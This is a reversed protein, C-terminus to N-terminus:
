DEGYREVAEDRHQEWWGVLRDMEAPTLDFHTLGDTGFLLQGNGRLFVTRANAGLARVTLDTEYNHPM